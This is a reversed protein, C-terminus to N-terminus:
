HAMVSALQKKLAADEPFISLGKQYAAIAKAKDGMQAYMNGLLLHTQSHHPQPPLADQQKVLTEFNSIAEGQKGLVPPWFSLSVAKSFRAQWDREDLALARDFEKDAKTAWVGSEPSNGSKYVNQLYAQGLETHAKPDNPNNKAREEFLALLDKMVGAKDAERWVAQADEWELGGATLKAFFAQPDGKPTETGSKDGKKSGAATKEAAGREKLAREVAAEIEGVPVRTAGEKSALQLRLEELSKELDAQRKSVSELSRALELTPDPGVARSAAQPEPAPKMVAFILFATGAAALISLFLITFPKM